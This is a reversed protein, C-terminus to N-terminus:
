EDEVLTVIAGPPADLADLTRRAAADIQIRTGSTPASAHYTGPGYLQGYRVVVGGSELVLREHEATARGGEGPLTWAISQTIVRVGDAAALLNRTGETRIRPTAAADIQTAEDALDTLEDIILDPAFARVADNLARADYVDCVIPEAGLRALAGAKSPTRTMAGVVHGKAVLLPVIRTGLVGSAGAVFVRM